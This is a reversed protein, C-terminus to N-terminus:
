EDELKGAEKKKEPEAGGAPDKKDGEGKGLGPIAGVTDPKKVEEEKPANAAAVEQPKKQEFQEPPNKAMRDAAAQNGAAAGMAMRAFVAANPLNGKWWGGVPTGDCTMIFCAAGDKGRALLEVPWGRNDTRVMVYTFAQLADKVAKDPFVNQEFSRAVSNNKVSSDWVYLVIPKGAKRAANLDVGTWTYTKDSGPVFKAGSGGLSQAWAQGTLLVAGAVLLGWLKTM